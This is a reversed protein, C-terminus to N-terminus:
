HPQAHQFTHWQQALEVASLFNSHVGFPVRDPVAVRAIPETSLHLREADWICLHSQQQQASCRGVLQADRCHWRLQPLPPPAAYVIDVLWGADEPGSAASQKPIFFCEGGLCGEGYEVVANVAANKLDFKVFGDYMADGRSRKMLYGWRQESGFHQRNVDCREVATDLM